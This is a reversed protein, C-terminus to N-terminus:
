KSCYLLDRRGTTGNQDVRDATLWVQCDADNSALCHDNVYRAMHDINAQGFDERCGPHRWIYPDVRSDCVLRIGTAQPNGEQLSPCVELYREYLKPIENLPDKLFRNCEDASNDSSSLTEETFECVDAPVEQIENNQQVLDNFEAASSLGGDKWPCITDAWCIKDQEIGGPVPVNVTSCVALIQGDLGAEDCDDLESRMLRTLRSEQTGTIPHCKGLDVEVVSSNEPRPDSTPYCVAQVSIREDPNLVANDCADRTNRVLAAAKNTNSSNPCLIDSRSPEYNDFFRHQRPENGEFPVTGNLENVHCGFFLCTAALLGRCKAKLNLSEFM